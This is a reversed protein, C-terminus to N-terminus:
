EHLGFPNQANASAAAQGAPPIVTSPKRLQEALAAPVKTPAERQGLVRPATHPLPQEPFAHEVPPPGPNPATLAATATGIPVPPAGTHRGAIFAGALM